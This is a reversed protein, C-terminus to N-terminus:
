PSGEQLCWQTSDRVPSLGEKLSYRGLSFFGSLSERWPFAERRASKESPVRELSVESFLYVEPSKVLIGM